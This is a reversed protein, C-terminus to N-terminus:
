KNKSALYAAYRITNIAVDLELYFIAPMGPRWNVEYIWIKQNSDLGVDIGLEDLPRDHVSDMHEALSLAFRELYRKINYDHDGFEEKLFYDLASTYGHSALNTTLKGPVAIRPFITTIVWKGESSKQVHLRFDFTLGSKTQCQIFPQVLYQENKVL